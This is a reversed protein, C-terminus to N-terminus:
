RKRINQCLYRANPEINRIFRKEEQYSHPIICFYPLQLAPHEFCPNLANWVM